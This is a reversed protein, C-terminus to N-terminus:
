QYPEVQFTTTAQILRSGDPQDALNLSTTVLKPAIQSIQWKYCVWAVIIANQQGAAVSSAGLNGAGDTCSPLSGIAAYSAYSAVHVELQCSGGIFDPMAQCVLTKFTAAPNAYAAQQFAGTRIQRSATEVANEIAFTTFFFLGVTFIGFLLMLFPPGVLAFEIATAGNDDARLRKLLANVGFRSEVTRCVKRWM